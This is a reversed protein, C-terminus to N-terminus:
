LSADPNNRNDPGRDITGGELRMSVTNNGDRLDVRVIFTEAKLTVTEEDHLLGAMTLFHLYAWVAKCINGQLQDAEPSRIVELERGVDFRPHQVLKTM